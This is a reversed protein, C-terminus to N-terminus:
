KEKDDNDIWDIRNENALHHCIGHTDNASAIGSFPHASLNMLRARDTVAQVRNFGNDFESELTDIIDNYVEDKLSTVISDNNPRTDRELDLLTEATFFYVRQREFHRKLKPYDELKSEVIVIKETDKLSDEYAKFLKKTYVSENDQIADPPPTPVERRKKLGGGFISAFSITGELSKILELPTKHNFINFDINDIYDLLEKSLKITEKKTIKDKCHKDWESIFQEKLKTPNELLKNLSNGIGKQCVFYYNSPLSYEGLYTFYCLKGIEIWINSPTLPSNYHKCQYNDWVRPGDGGTNIYAIVDRGMDGAGGCRVVKNYKNSLTETVWLEIFLEFDDPSFIDMRKVPDIAAGFAIDQNTLLFKPEPKQIPVEKMSKTM